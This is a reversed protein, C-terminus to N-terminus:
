TPSKAEAAHPQYERLTVTLFSEHMSGSDCSVPLWVALLDGVGGRPLAQRGLSYSIGGSAFDVFKVSYVCFIRHKHINSTQKGYKSPQQAKQRSPAM